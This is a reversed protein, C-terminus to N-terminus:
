RANTPVGESNVLPSEAWAMYILTNGSGNLDGDTTRLKFGNSVFDLEATTNEVTGDNAYLRYNAANYGLRKNDFIWWSGSSNAKKILVYAPRFGTYVMAGDANGNGLYSSFKSYGQIDAFAYCIFTDTNGNNITNGGLFINTADPEGSFNTQAGKGSTTNLALDGSESYGISQHYIQWNDGASNTKKMVLFDPKVGIGHALGAGSTSNGTYKLISIGATQNFSYSSPTITTSGDTTIGSTTGAKWNWSVYKTTNDNANGGATGMTYGDAGFATIFESDTVEANTLDPYNQKDGGRVSDIARHDQTTDRAKQWVFDPQFGVGTIAHATGTGTYLVPNFFLGADDITTYAAM